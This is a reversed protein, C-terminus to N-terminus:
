PNSVKFGVDEWGGADPCGYYVDRVHDVLLRACRNSPDDLDAETLGPLESEYLARTEPPLSRILEELRALCAPAGAGPSSDPPIVWNAAEALKALDLVEM